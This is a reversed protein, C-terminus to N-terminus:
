AAVGGILGAVSWAAVFKVPQCVCAGEADEHWMIVRGNGLAVGLAGLDDVGPLMVLDGVIAAAPPIRFVGQADIADALTAFGARALARRAGLLTSYTGAKAIKPRHGLQRLHFVAMRACDNSGFAFPVNKFRDLTAQAAAVRRVMIPQAKM